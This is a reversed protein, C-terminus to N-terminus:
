TNIYAHTYIHIYIYIYPIYIYMCAHIHVHLIYAHIYVCIYVYICVEFLAMVRQPPKSGMKGLAWLTNALDLASFHSSLLLEEM